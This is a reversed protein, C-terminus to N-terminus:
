HIATMIVDDINVYSYEDKDNKKSNFVGLVITHEGADLPGLNAEFSQWGTSQNNGGDGDGTIQAVYDNGGEGYLVGDVSFLMQSFEDSEYNANQWLKYRFSVTVESAAEALDFSRKWGGSMGQITQDDINGVKAFLYGEGYKKKWRWGSAYAPQDTGRFTDDSYKFGDSDGNFHASFRTPKKGEFDQKDLCLNLNNISGSSEFRIQLRAVGTANVPVVQFSNNGYPQIETSGLKTGDFAYAEVTGGPEDEDTDIVSFDQVDVPHEFDIWIYGGGQDDNPDSSDGDQSIILVNGMAQSNEGPMGARGGDGIGPGGFDENPTGLDWDGGTPNASDFIM